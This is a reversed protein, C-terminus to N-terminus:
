LDLYTNSLIGEAVDYLKPSTPSLPTPLQLSFIAHLCEFIKRLIYERLSM